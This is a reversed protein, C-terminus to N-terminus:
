PVAASAGQGRANLVLVVPWGFLAALDATSGRGDATGDFLGMVGEVIAIGPGELAATGRTFTALVGGEGTMWGDLNRSPRGLAAQHFTPDLYDPGAKFLRVDLGRDALACALACVVTTKGTGSGTGAVVITPPGTM